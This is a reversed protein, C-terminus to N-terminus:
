FGVLEDINPIPYKDPITIKNLARYDVCMRWTDDKKKVLLIPSSFPSNSPRIFDAALFETVQREIETKQSHPYRYPRINPPTSNPLLPIAHDQSRHPPLTKPEEFVTNYKHIISQFMHPIEPAISPEAALHQFSSSTQPGTSIGIKLDDIQLTLNKCIRGCRIVDGNGIQVGFSTMTHTPRKLKNELVDSIFNHTSDGDILVLVETSNLMCQVKMTTPLPKGIIAHLSIEAVETNEESNHDIEPFSQETPEEEAELLKLTGTKCRHGPGYKKGCKFCEGKLYRTQKESDSIRLPPKTNPNFPTSHTISSKPGPQTLKSSSTTWSSGAKFVTRPKQIRVDSKLEDKLGNLFVGLLCHDPWNTVRSSRKAFEQRYEQVTGTQKLSCLYKDPNQFETAGFSKQLAHVLDEWYEIHQDTSLWSYLDLADGELHM